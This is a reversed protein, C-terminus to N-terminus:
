QSLDLNLVWLQVQTQLSSQAREAQIMLLERYYISRHIFFRVLLGHFIFYEFLPLYVLHDCLIFPIALFNYSRPLLKHNLM